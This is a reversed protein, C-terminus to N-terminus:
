WLKYRITSAALSAGDDRFTDYVIVPVEPREKPGRFRIFGALCLLWMAVTQLRFAREGAM